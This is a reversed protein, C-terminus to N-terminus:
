HQDAYSFMMTLCSLSRQGYSKYEYFCLTPAYHQPLCHMSEFCVAVVAATSKERERTMDRETARKVFLCLKEWWGHGPRFKMGSELFSKAEAMGANM